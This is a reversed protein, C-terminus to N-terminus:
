SQPIPLQMHVRSGGVSNIKSIQVLGSLQEAREAMGRLGFGWPQADKEIGKGDDEITLNAYQNDIILAITVQKAQAHRQVNTLAEQATRYLAHRHSVPIPPLVDPINLKVDINTAAQFNRVLRTLANPLTLDEELPTRLTAITGRLEQLGELVQNRVTAVITATKEPNKHALREAGELQVAAVTLRHGLTDHVERALRNREEAVALEEAQAAYIQLQQHAQQLEHLLRDSEIAANEARIQAAAASGIFLYGGIAGIGNIFGWWFSGIANILYVLTLIGAIVVWIIGEKQGSIETGTASIIFFLIIIGTMPAELFFLWVTILNFAIMQLRRIFQPSNQDAVFQLATFIGMALLGWWRRNDTSDYVTFIYTAVALLSVIGAIDFGNFPRKKPKSNTM